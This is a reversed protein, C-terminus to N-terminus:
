DNVKQFDAGSCLAVDVFQAPFADQPPDPESLEDFSSQKRFISRKSDRQGASARINRIRELLERFYNGGGLEMLRQDDLAFGKKM